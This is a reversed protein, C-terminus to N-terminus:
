SNPLNVMFILIKKTQNNCMLNKLWEQYEQLFKYSEAGSTKSKIHHRLCSFVISSTIPPEINYMQFWLDIDM